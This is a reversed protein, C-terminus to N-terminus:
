ERCHPSSTGYHCPPPVGDSVWPRDPNTWWGRWPEGSDTFTFIVIGVFACVSLWMCLTVVPNEPVRRGRVWHVFGYLGTGVIVTPVVAMIMVVLLMWLAGGPSTPYM